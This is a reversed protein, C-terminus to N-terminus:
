NASKAFFAILSVFSLLQYYNPTLMGNRNQYFEIEELSPNENDIERQYDEIIVDFKINAERLTQAADDVASKKLFM